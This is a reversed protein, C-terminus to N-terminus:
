AAAPTSRPQCVRVPSLPPELRPLLVIHPANIQSFRMMDPALQAPAGAQAVRPEGLIQDQEIRCISFFVLLFVALVYESKM